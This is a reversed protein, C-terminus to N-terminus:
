ATTSIQSATMEIGAGGHPAVDVHAALLHLGVFKLGRVRAPHLKSLEKNTLENWPKLGREWRQSCGDHLLTAPVGDIEIRAGVTPLLRRGSRGPPSWTIEIRAGWRPVAGRHPLQSM